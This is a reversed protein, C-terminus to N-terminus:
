GLGCRGGRAMCRASCAAAGAQARAGGRAEARLARRETAAGCGQAARRVSEPAPAASGRRVASAPLATAVAADAM